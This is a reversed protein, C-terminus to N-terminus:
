GPLVPSLSGDEELLLLERLDRVLLRSAPSGPLPLSGPIWPIAAPALGDGVPSIGGTDLDLLVTRPRRLSPGPELDWCLLATGPRPGPVAHLGERGEVGRTWTVGEPTALLARGGDGEGETQLALVRGPGLPLLQVPPATGPLPCRWLEEGDRLRRLTIWLAGGGEVTLALLEGGPPGATHLSRPIRPLKGLRWVPELSEGGPELRYVGVGGGSERSTPDPSLAFWARGGDEVRTLLAQQVPARSRTVVEGTATDRVTIREGSLELLALGAPSLRLRLPREPLRIELLSRPGDGDRGSLELVTLLAAGNRTGRAGREVVAVRGGDASFALKGLGIGPGRLFLRPGREMHGLFSAPIDLGARHSIGQVAVWPGRPAATVLAIRRLDSPEAALAWRFGSVLILTSLLLFGVAVSVGAASARSPDMRGRLAAAASGALLALAWSVPFGLIPWSGLTVFTLRIAPGLVWTFCAWWAGLNAAILVLFWPSRFRFTLRVLGAGAVLGAVLAVPLALPTPGLFQPAPEESLRAGVVSPLLVLAPAAVTVLLSAAMRGSWLSLAGVPRALHFGERGTGLGGVLIESSVVLATFLFVGTALVLAAVLRLTGPSASHPIPLAPAALALAGLALSAALLPLTRTFEFRLVELTAKM